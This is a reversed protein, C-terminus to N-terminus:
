MDSGADDSGVLEARNAKVQKLSQECLDVFNSFQRSTSDLTTNLAGELNALLNDTYSIASTTIEDADRNADAVIQDAKAEAEKIINDAIEQAIRRTKEDIFFNEQEKEMLQSKNIHFYDALKQIKGMRPIAIGKMWTNFTQPSVNIDDAIDKQNKGSQSVYRKLNNSFIISIIMM